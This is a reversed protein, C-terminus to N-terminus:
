DGETLLLLPPGAFRLSCRESRFTRSVVEPQAHQKNIAPVLVEHRGAIGDTAQVHM